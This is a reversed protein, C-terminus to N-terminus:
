SYKHITVRYAIIIKVFLKQYFDEFSNPEYIITSITNYIMLNKSENENLSKKEPSMKIFNNNENQFSTKPDNCLKEYVKTDDPRNRINTM